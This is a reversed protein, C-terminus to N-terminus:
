SLHHLVSCSVLVAVKHGSEVLHMGLREIFSSKGLLLSTAVHESLDVALSSPRVWEQHGQCVLVSPTCNIRDMCNTSGESFRDRM